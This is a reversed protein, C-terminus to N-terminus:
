LPTNIFVNATDNFFEFNNKLHIRTESISVLSTYVLLHLSCDIFDSMIQLTCLGVVTWYHVSTM